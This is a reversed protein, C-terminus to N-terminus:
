QLLVCYIFLVFIVFLVGDYFYPVCFSVFLVCYVVQINDIRGFRATAKLNVRGRFYILVLSLFLLDNQPASRPCHALKVFEGGDTLWNGVLHPIRLM